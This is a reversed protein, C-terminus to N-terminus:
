TWKAAPRTSSGRANIQVKMTVKGGQIESSLKTSSKLVRFSSLSDREGGKASCPYVIILNKVRNSLWAM